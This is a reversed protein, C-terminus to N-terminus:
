RPRECDIQGRVPGGDPTFSEWGPAIAYHFVNGAGSPKTGRVILSSNLYLDGLSSTALNAFAAGSQAM